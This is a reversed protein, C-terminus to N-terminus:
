HELTSSADRRVKQLLWTIQNSNNMVKRYIEVPRSAIVNFGYVAQKDETPVTVSNFLAEYDNPERYYTTAKRLSINGSGHVCSERLFVHGNLSLWYLLKALLCRTSENDLYMFFWNTFILDASNPSMKLNMVDDVVYDINDLCSNSKQNKKIFKDVFDVATVHRAKQALHTTFRGIGAGLELVELGEIEPLYSIIESVDGDSLENSLTNLMMGQPSADQFQWESQLLARDDSASQLTDM